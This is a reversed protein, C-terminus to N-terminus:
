VGVPVSGPKSPAEVPAESPRTRPEGIPYAGPEAQKGGSDGCCVGLKCTSCYDCTHGACCPM